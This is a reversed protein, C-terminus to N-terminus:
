HKFRGHLYCTVIEHILGKSKQWTIQAIRFRKNDCYFISGIVNQVSTILLKIYNRVAESLSYSRCHIRCRGSMRSRWLLYGWDVRENEIIHNVQAEPVWIAHGFKKMLMHGLKTDAGLQLRTTPNPGLSEDFRIDVLASSPVALNCGVAYYNKDIGNIKFESPGLNRGRLSNPGIDWWEPKPEELCPMIPGFYYGAIPHRLFSLWYADLWRPGCICDDDTFLLLDGSASSIGVNLARSHGHAKCHVLTKSFPLDWNEVQAATNDTSASDVFVLEPSSGEPIILESLSTLLGHIKDSGNYSAVIISCRAREQNSNM